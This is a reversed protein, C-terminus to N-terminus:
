RGGKEAPPPDAPGDDARRLRDLFAPPLRGRWRERIVGDEVVIGTPTGWILRDFRASALPYVPFRLDPLAEGGAGPGASMVGVIRYLDPRTHAVNLVQIWRHCHSCSPRLYVVLVRGHEVGEASGGWEPRWARGPRLPSLDVLPRRKRREYAYALAALAGVLLGAGVSVVPKWLPTPAPPPSWAWAGALLALYVANLAISQRPTLRALTGYCGCDETRGTATSWYTLATLAALLVAAAPVVVAPYAGVVLAAGLVGELVLALGTAPLLLRAPILGLRGLHASFQLPRVAKAVAAVLLVAGVLAPGLRELLLEM